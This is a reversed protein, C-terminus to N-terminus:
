TNVERKIFSALTPDGWEIRPVEGEYRGHIPPILQDAMVIIFVTYFLCCRCCSL